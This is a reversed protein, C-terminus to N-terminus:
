LIVIIDTGTFTGDYLKAYCAAASINKEAAKKKIFAKLQMPNTTIMVAGGSITIGQTKGPATGCIAFSSSYRQNKVAAYRKMAEGATQIDIGSGRM